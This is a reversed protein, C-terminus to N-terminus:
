KSEGQCKQFYEKIRYYPDIIFWFLLAVLDSGSHDGCFCCHKTGILFMGAFYILGVCFWFLISM